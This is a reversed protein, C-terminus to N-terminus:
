QPGVLNITKRRWRYAVIVITITSITCVLIVLAGPSVFTPMMELGLSPDHELTNNGFYPYALFLRIHNGASIYSAKVDVMTTTNEDSILAYPVYKFFGAITADPIAYRLTYRERWTARNRMPTELDSLTNNHALSMQVGEVYMNQTTSHTEVSGEDSKVDQEAIDIEALSISALNMWLALGTRNAPVEIGNASFDDLLPQILDLNWTWHKVVLDMKLEGAGVSYTYFGDVDETTDGLYLRCRLIINNEAFKLNPFLLPVNVLTFNFSIYQPNDSPVEVPGSLAWECARFPLYPSHLRYLMALQMLRQQIHLRVQQQLRTQEPTFYDDNLVKRLRYETAQLTHQYFPTTFTVFEILGKYKVAYLTSPNEAYWWLFMPRTGGTPFLINISDTKIWTWRSSGNPGYPLIEPSELPKALTTHAASPLGLSVALMTLVM